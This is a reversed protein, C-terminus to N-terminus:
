AALWSLSSITTNSISEGLPLRTGVPTRISTPLGDAMLKTVGEQDVPMMADISYIVAFYLSSLAMALAVASGAVWALPFAFGFGTSAPLVAFVTAAAGALFIAPLFAGTFATARAASAPAPDHTLSELVLPPVYAALAEALRADGRAPPTASAPM